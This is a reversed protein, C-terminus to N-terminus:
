NTMKEEKTIELYYIGLNKMYNKKKKLKQRSPNGSQQEWGEEALGMM